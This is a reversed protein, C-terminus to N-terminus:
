FLKSIDLKEIGKDVRLRPVPPERLGAKGCCDRLHLVEVAQKWPAEVSQYLKALAIRTAPASRDFALGAEGEDVWVVKAKGLEPQEGPEPSTLVVEVEQDKALGPPLGGGVRAGGQSVDLMM